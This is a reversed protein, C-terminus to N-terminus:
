PRAPNARLTREEDRRVRLRGGSEDAQYVPQPAVAPGSVVHGTVLDFRSGHWPCIIIGDRVQGESLPGGRHSCRDALVCVRGFQRITVVATTGVSARRPSGDESPVGDIETWDVPEASFANTDVGVGLAYTLHGGFWAAAGTVAAGAGALVAGAADRGARRSRYSAGYLGLALLNLSMHAMGVRREAGSTDLWDSLGTLAAPGAAVLGAGVLKRAAKPQGLADLVTTASFLGIPGAVLAPHVPHGLWSGSLLSRSRISIPKCVKGLWDAPRDLVAAHEVREAFTTLATGIAAAISGRSM